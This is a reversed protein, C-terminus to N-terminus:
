IRSYEAVAHRNPNVALFAEIQNWFLEPYIEDHTLRYARALSLSWTFRAPEWTFKIDSGDNENTYETWHLLTQGNTSFVLPQPTGYFPRYLGELLLHADEDPLTDGNAPVFNEWNSNWGFSQGTSELLLENKSRVGGLPTRRKIIGGRLRLQYLAYSTLDPIGIEKVLLTLKRLSNM